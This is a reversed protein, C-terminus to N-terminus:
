LQGHKIAAYTIMSLLSFVDFFIILFDSFAKKSNSENKWKKDLEEFKSFGIYRISYLLVILAGLLIGWYKNISIRDFVDETKLLLSIYGQLSILIFVTFASMFIIASFPSKFNDIRELIKVLRYFIYDLFKM